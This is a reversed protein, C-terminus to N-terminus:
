PIPVKSLIEEIITDTQIDEAQGTYNLIIRHRLVDKAVHKVHKPKIFADGNMLADAKSAIFLSISARPSGGWEIYRGTKIKFKDPDRTASILDVIYQKIKDSHGIQKTLEQLEVIRGPSLIASLGYDEYKKLTINEEIIMKEEERSPYEVVTKFLFRDIQAEPLPYTGLTEIPNQTALVFFPQELAFTEKGITAQREQMAELLASQVKPPARNIEDAIIFNTFLPGKIVFFGKNEEYSTIGVIDTPLLDATFQIRNFYCGSVTALSKIMLTKAIGPIGEILVHGNALLAKIIRDVAADQGVVVKAIEKKVSDIDRKAQAILTKSVKKM